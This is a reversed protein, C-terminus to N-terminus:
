ADPISPIEEKLLQAFREELSAIYDKISWSYKHGSVLMEIGAVMAPSTEFNIEVDAVTYHKLEDLIMSRQSASIEFSSKIVIGTNQLARDHSLLDLSEKGAERILRVFKNVISQELEQDALDFLIRSITEFVYTGSRKRLNELFSTKERGLTDYWRQQILDVEERAKEILDQRTKGAEDRAKNLVDQAMENLSRNKEEFAEASERAKDKMQQAEEIQSTIRAQRDDMAKVIRGYLLRKLVYALILFNVIQAFFVFWDIHM